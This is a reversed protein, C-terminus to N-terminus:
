SLVHPTEPHWRVHSPYIWNKYVLVGLDKETEAKNKALRGKERNRIWVKAFFFDKSCFQMEGYLFFLSM